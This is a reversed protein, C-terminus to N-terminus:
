REERQNDKMLKKDLRTNLTKKDNEDAVDGCQVM